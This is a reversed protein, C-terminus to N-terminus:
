YAAEKQEFGDDEAWWGEPQTQKGGQARLGERSRLNDGIGGLRWAQSM